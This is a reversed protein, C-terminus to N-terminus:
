GQQGWETIGVDNVSTQQCGLQDFFGKVMEASEQIGEGTNSISPQQIWKQLNLVHEDIHTDIYSFIERLGASHIQSMDIGVTEDAIARIGLSVAPAAAPVSPTAAVVGPAGTASGPAAATEVTAEGC